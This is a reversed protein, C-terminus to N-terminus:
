SWVDSSYRKQSDMKKIYDMADLESMNGREMVVKLLINHVDRAMNRADRFFFVFFHFNSFHSNLFHIKKASLSPCITVSGCIYIHGNQEGIVRWIEEKNNELLHTVYVKQPQERSFATHLTLSGSQVYQELEEHYLYDENRKRCGFYLITDGVDKGSTCMPFITEHQFTFVNCCM